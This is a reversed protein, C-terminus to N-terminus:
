IAELPSFVQAYERFGLGKRGAASGSGTGSLGYGWIGLGLGKVRLIGLGLGVSPTRNAFLLPNLAETKPNPTPIYYIGM